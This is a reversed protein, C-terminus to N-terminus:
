YVGPIYAVLVDLPSKKRRKGVGGIVAKLVIFDDWYTCVELAWM